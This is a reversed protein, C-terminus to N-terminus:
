QRLLPPPARDAKRLDRSAEGVSAPRKGARWWGGDIRSSSRWYIPGSTEVGAGLLGPRLPEVKQLSILDALRWAIMQRLGESLTPEVERADSELSCYYNHNGIHWRFCLVNAELELRGNM